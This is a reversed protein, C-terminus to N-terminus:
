RSPVQRLVLLFRAGEGTLGQGLYLDQQVDYKVGPHLDLVLRLRRSDAHWATRIPGRLLPHAWSTLRPMSGMWSPELDVVLRRPNELTFVKPYVARDMILTLSFAETSDSSAQADLVRACGTCTDAGQATSGTWLLYAWGTFLVLLSTVLPLAFIRKTLGM